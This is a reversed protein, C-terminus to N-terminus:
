REPLGQDQHALSVTSPPKGSGRNAKGRRPVQALFEATRHVFNVPRDRAKLFAGAIGSQYLPHEVVQADVHRHHAPVPGDIAIRLQEMLVRVLYAFAAEAGARDGFVDIQSELSLGKSLQGFAAINMKVM